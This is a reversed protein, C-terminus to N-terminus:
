LGRSLGANVPGELILGFSDLVRYSDAGFLLGTFPKHYGPHSKFGCASLAGSRLDPTYVM